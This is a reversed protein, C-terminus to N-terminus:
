IINAQGLIFVALAILCFCAYLFSGSISISFLKSRMKLTSTYLLITDLDEGPTDLYVFPRIRVEHGLNRLHTCASTLQAALLVPALVAIIWLVVAATIPTWNDSYEGRSIGITCTIIWSTNLFIFICVGPSFEKNLYNLVSRCENIERIWSLPQITHQILKERLFHLSSTLLQVQLCYNAIITAQIVDQWVITVVLAVQLLFKWLDSYLWQFIQDKDKLMLLVISCFSTLVWLVSLCIIIWLRYVLHPKRANARHVSLLFTREMLNELQEPQKFRLLYLVYVYGLFHIICPLLLGFTANELAHSKCAFGRDRRFCGLYMLVYGLLTFGIVNIVHLNSIAPFIESTNTGDSGFGRFGVIALFRLYPKLVKQKCRSLVASTSRFDGFDTIESIDVRGNLDDAEISIPTTPGSVRIAGAVEAM